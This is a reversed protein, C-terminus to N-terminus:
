FQYAFGGYYTRGLAPEIANQFVRSYYTKDGINSVGALLRLHPAVWYDGSFDWVTYQPIKAPVFTQGSGFPLNSDQWYQSAVSTVTLQLKLKADERWALGGRIVYDPAFAPVKGTLTLSETFEANLLSVSGFISFHRVTAPDILAAIFDYDIQGEFGRHRTNGTNINVTDTPNAPDPHQAEIRDQMEIWFLSADYFLGPTPTGHVGAEYSLVHTPNPDNGPLLTSTPSAVDFYRVPRWGQSVNFYTENGHGFDNGFGLGLLPVTHDVDVDYLPRRTITSPKVSEDVKIQEHEIRVSPVLHWNDWRFVNEAFVAAYDTERAQVSRPILDVREYRELEFNGPRSIWQREPDDSHYATIGATFANGQGWRHLLRSDIGSYRFQIDSLTATANPAPATAPPIVTPGSASAQDHYGVWAKSNIQTKEDLHQENSLVLTYREIWNHNFPTTTTDPNALFVPYGMKGPDGESLNSAHFDLAWYAGSDPHYGVHIDAGSLYSSANDRQGDNQGYHADFLYDWAGNTGDIENFSSFLGNKGIVNESYGGFERNPDPKRSIYNIVPAPQPGYLLSNGGRIEQVQSITQPLPMFYLTPFGIWNDSIPIGDQMVLVFESEQPNGLGRYSLNTQGVVQQESILLGPTHSFLDRLNNDIVTPIQDLKTVSTKKTVTILPGDVEKMIHDLKPRTDDHSARDKVTVQELTPTQPTQPADEAAAPVCFAAIGASLAAPAFEIMRM